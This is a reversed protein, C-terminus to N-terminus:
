LVRGYHREGVLTGVIARLRNLVQVHGDALEAAYIWGDSSRLRQDLYTGGVACATSPDLHRRPNGIAEVPHRGAAM